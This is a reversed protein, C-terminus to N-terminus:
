SRRLSRARSRYTRLQAARKARRAGIKSAVAKAAALREKREKKPLSALHEAIVTYLKEM